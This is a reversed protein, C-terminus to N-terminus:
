YKIKVISDNRKVNIMKTGKSIRTTRKIDSVSIAHKEGSQMIVTFSTMSLPIVKFVSDGEDLSTIRIMEQRRKSTKMVDCIACIKMKGKTTIILIDTINDHSFLFYGMFFAFGYIGFRYVTVAPTNLIQAFGWLLIGM